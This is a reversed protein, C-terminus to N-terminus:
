SNSGASGAGIIYEYLDDAVNQWTRLPAAAIAAERARLYAPDLLPKMLGAKISALDDPDVYGALDGCVEPISSAKSAVCYRGFWASEGVPLGWGEVHSPYASFLCNRYLWAMAQDSPGDVVVVLQNLEQHMEIYQRVEEGGIKGFRGAFALLPTQDGLEAYIQRWVKLLSLGNKRAEITGVCLVFRRGALDAFRAPLEVDSNRAYGMFEHALVVPYAL